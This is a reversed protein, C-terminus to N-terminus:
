RRVEPADRTLRDALQRLARALPERRDRADNRWLGGLVNLVRHLEACCARLAPSPQLDLDAQLVQARFDEWDNWQQERLQDIKARREQLQYVEHLTEQVQRRYAHLDCVPNLWIRDLLNQMEVLRETSEADLRELMRRLSLELAQEPRRKGDAEGWEMEVQVNLADLAEDLPRFREVAFRVVRGQRPLLVLTSRADAEAWMRRGMEEAIAQKELPPPPWVEWGAPCFLERHMARWRWDLALLNGAAVRPPTVAPPDDLSAPTVLHLPPQGAIEVRAHRFRAVEARPTSMVWNRLRWASGLTDDPLEFYVHMEVATQAPPYLFRHTELQETLDNIKGQLEEEVRDPGDPHVAKPVLRMPLSHVPVDAVTRAEALPSPREGDYFALKWAPHRLLLPQYEAPSPLARTSGRRDVLVGPPWSARKRPIWGWPFYPGNSSPLAPPDDPEDPSAPPALEAYFVGCGPTHLLRHVIANAPVGDLDLLYDVEANHAGAGSSGFSAAAVTAPGGRLLWEVVFHHYLSLETGRFHALVHLRKPPSDWPQLPEAPM